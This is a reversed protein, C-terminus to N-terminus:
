GAARRVLEEMTLEANAELAFRLRERADDDGAFLRFSGEGYLRGGLRDLAPELLARGEATNPALLRDNSFIEIATASFRERGSLEPEGHLRLAMSALHEVLSCLRQELEGAVAQKRYYLLGRRGGAEDVALNGEHAVLLIGPGSPVHSYDAVDVAVGPVTQAQLWRHFIPIYDALDLAPAADCFLKAGIRQLEM